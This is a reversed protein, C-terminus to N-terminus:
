ELEEDEEEGDLYAADGREREEEYRAAAWLEIHDYVGVVAVTDGIELHAYDRLDSRLLLRGSSDPVQQDAGGFMTRRYRRGAKDNPMALAEAAKEEYVKTPFVMLHGDQGKTIVCGQESLQSRYRSPLVLRGKGDVNHRDEGLFVDRRDWGGDLPAM